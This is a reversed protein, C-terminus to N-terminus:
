YFCEEGLYELCEPLEITKLNKCERFMRAEITKLAPPIKISELGTGYFCQKGLYELGEPLLINKLAACGSFTSYEIRRLTSPLKM